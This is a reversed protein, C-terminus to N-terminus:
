GGKLMKDGGVRKVFRGKIRPRKDANFKRVQYRIKKSFLRSQRKEKYRLVSAERRTIREEEMIPVEGMYSYNPVSIAFDNDAWPSGRNSWAQLVEQYNLNLHLTVKKEDGDDWLGLSETKEANRGFREGEGWQFISQTGESPPFEDRNAFDRNNLQRGGNIDDEGTEPSKGEDGEIGFIEEFEELIETKKNLHLKNSTSFQADPTTPVEQEEMQSLPSSSKVMERNNKGKEESM